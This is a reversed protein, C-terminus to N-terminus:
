SAERARKLTEQRWDAENLSVKLKAALATLSFWRRQTPSSPSQRADDRNLGRAERFDGARLSLIEFAAVFPVDSFRQVKFKKKAEEVRQAFLNEIEDDTWKTIQKTEDAM